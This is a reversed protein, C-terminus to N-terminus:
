RAYIRDGKQLLKAAEPPLVRVRSTDTSLRDVELCVPRESVTLLEGEAQGQDAKGERMAIFKAGVRIGQSSGVDTSVTGGSVEVVRGEALPFGQLVKLFLGGVQYTLDREPKEAYVDTTFRISGDASDVARVQVTVGNGQSLVAGVFLLEASLLKGIRLAARPDALDSATMHLERMVYEWGEDRELLHFRSPQRTFEKQLRARAQWAWTDGQPCFPPIGAALRFEAERYKPEARMVVFKREQRNGSMDEAVVAFCNSGLDLPLVGGFSVTKSGKEAPNLYEQGNVTVSAVGGLDGAEGELYFESVRVRMCDSEAALRLTPKLTDRPAGAAAFLASLLVPRNGPSDALTLPPAARLAGAFGLAGQARFAVAQPMRSLLGQLDVSLGNGAEDTMELVPREDRSFEISLAVTGDGRRTQKLAHRTNKVLVSRLAFDDHASGEVSVLGGQESVSRVSFTPARWDAIRQVSVEATRGNLDTAIIRIDNVGPNLRVEKSFDRATEALEIFEPSGGVEIRKVRGAASVRGSVRVAHERSYGSVALAGGLAIVPPPLGQGAQLVQLAENLYYKARGTPEQRLSEALEQAAARADGCKLLAVGLERHPFYDNVFRVGYTRAQWQERPYGYKAGSRLGLCVEFDRKAEKWEGAATAQVGREYYNWWNRHLPPPRTEGEEPAVSRCSTLIALLAVLM